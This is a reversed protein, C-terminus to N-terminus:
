KMEVRLFPLVGGWNAECQEWKLRLTPKRVGAFENQGQHWEDNDNDDDNDTYRRKGNGSKWKDRSSAQTVAM